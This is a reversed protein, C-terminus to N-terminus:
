KSTLKHAETVGSSDMQVSCCQLVVPACLGLSVCLSLVLSWRCYNSSAGTNLRLTLLDFVTVISRRRIGESHPMGINYSTEPAVYNVIAIGDM